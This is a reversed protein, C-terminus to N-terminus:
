QSYPKIFGQIAQFVKQRIAEIKFSNFETSNVISLLQTVPAKTTSYTVRNILHKMIEDLQNIKPCKEIVETDIQDDEFYVM